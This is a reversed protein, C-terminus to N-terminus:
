YIMKEGSASLFKLLFIERFSSFRPDSPSPLPSFDHCSGALLSQVIADEELHSFNSHWSKGRVFLAEAGTVIEREGDEGMGRSFYGLWKFFGEKWAFAASVLHNGRTAWRKDCKRKGNERTGCM